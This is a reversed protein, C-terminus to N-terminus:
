QLMCDSFKTGLKQVHKRVTVKLRKRFSGCTVEPATEVFIALL